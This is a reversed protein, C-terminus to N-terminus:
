RSSPDPLHARQDGDVVLGPEVLERAPEVSSPKSSTALPPVASTGRPARARRHRADLVHRVRGLHEAAAHLRQVRADVAADERSAVAGVVERREVLLLDLREVEDADVEIREARDDRSCPARMSSATSIISMPPGDISRAAAFFKACTAGRRAVRSCYARTSASSVRARRTERRVRAAREGGVGERVAGRVLRRDRAPEGLALAQRLRQRERELLHLVERVALVRVLAGGVVALEARAPRQERVDLLQVAPRQGEVVQVVEGARQHQQALERQRRAHDDLVRVRAADGDGRRDLLRVLARERGIREGCEAHDARTLRGTM